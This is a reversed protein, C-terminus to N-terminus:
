FGGVSKLREVLEETGPQAVLEVFRDYGKEVHARFAEVDARNIEVGVQELLAAHKEDDTAYLNRWYQGAAEGAKLVAAQEDSDLSQFVHESVIIPIFVYMHNTISVYKATEYLKTTYFTTLSNTIGDIVGQQISTFVESFAMPTPTMGMIELALIASPSEWIRIKLGSLDKPEVIPRKSNLIQHFGATGNAVIRLGAAEPLDGFFESALESSFFSEIAAFDKFLFPMDLLYFKRINDSTAVHSVGCACGDITGLKMGGLMEIEGGLQSSSYVEVNIAGDTLRSLEDRFRELGKQYPHSEPFIHGMRLTKEGSQARLIAPRALGSAAAVALSGAIFSRRKM